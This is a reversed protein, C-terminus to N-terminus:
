EQALLEKDTEEMLLFFEDLIHICLDLAEKISLKKGNFNYSIALSNSIESSEQIQNFFGKLGMFFDDFDSLIKLNKENAKALWSELSLQKERESTTNAIIKRMFEKKDKMLFSYSIREMKSFEGLSTELVEIQNKNNSHGTFIVHSLAKLFYSFMSDAYKALFFHLFQVKWWIEYDKLPIDKFPKENLEKAVSASLFKIIRKDWYDKKMQGQNERWESLLILLLIDKYLDRISFSAQHIVPIEYYPNERLVKVFIDLPIMKNFLIVMDYFSSVKENLNEQFSKESSFGERVLSDEFSWYYSKIIENLLSSSYTLTAFSEILSALRGFSRLFSDFNAGKQALNFLTEENERELSSEYGELFSRLVSDYPYIVLSHLLNFFHLEKKSDEFVQSHIMKLYDDVKEELVKKFNAELKYSSSVLAKDLEEQTFFDILREKPSVIKSKTLSYVGKLTEMEQSSIHNFFPLIDKTQQNLAYFRRFVSPKVKRDKLDLFVRLSGKKNRYAIINLIYNKYINEVSLSSFYSQLLFWFRRLFPESALDSKLRETMADSLSNSLPSFGKGNEQLDDIESSLDKELHVQIQNILSSRESSPLEKIAKELSERM